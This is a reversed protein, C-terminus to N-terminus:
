LLPNKEDLPTGTVMALGSLAPIPTNSTMERLRDVDFLLM